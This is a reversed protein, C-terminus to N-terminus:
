DRFVATSGATALTAVDEQSESRGMWGSQRANMESLANGMRSQLPGASLCVGREHKMGFYIVSLGSRQL